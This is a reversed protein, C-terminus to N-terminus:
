PATAAQHMLSWLVARPAGGATTVTAALDRGLYRYHWPEYAYCSIHEEGAPYSMVFGYRWANAAVWAGAPTTAWDELDWAPPGHLSRFDLATGLQHESHGARASTRIAAAYGNLDVWYQFTSEQYGFSRYASQIALQHGAANAATLLERLDDIVISRLRGDGHGAAGDPYARSAPVLDPPEYSEPLRFTTDLLTTRWDDYGVGQAPEDAVRCAPLPPVPAAATTSAALEAFMPDADPPPPIPAEEPTEAAAASPTAQEILLAALLLSM